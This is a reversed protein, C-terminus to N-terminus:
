EIEAFARIPSGDGGTINLPINNIIFDKGVLQSLNTLNEIILMNQEFFIKHIEYTQTDVPDVSIMDACVGKLNYGALLEAAEVNLVPFDCFYDGRGWRDSWGSFLVVFDSTKLMESYELICDATIIDMGRVDILVGKGVFDSIHFDSLSNKSPMIHSPADLHTGTHSFMTLLREEFGEQEIPTAVKIEPPETGPYVPMGEALPHTLDIIKM